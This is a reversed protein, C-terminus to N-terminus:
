RTRNEISYLVRVRPRMTASSSAPGHLVFQDLSSFEILSGARLLVGNNTGNVWLQTAHRVDFSLAGSSTPKATSGLIEFANSDTASVLVHSALLTDASFKSITSAADDVWLFMEAQNIIAGAPVPSPDFVLRSRYVVGAQVYIRGPDSVLGEIDGTFTDNGLTYSATDTVTGTLNRSVVTLTPLHQVSDTGFGTFGRALNASPNQDPLLLVGFQTTLFWTRVLATDIEFSVYETDALVTGSYSGRPIDSEYFGSSTVTDRILNLPSWARNIKHVTFNLNGSSDGIWSVARLQIVASLIEVTDRVPLQIFQM